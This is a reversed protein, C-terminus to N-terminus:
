RTNGRVMTAGARVLERTRETQKDDNDEIPLMARRVQDRRSPQCPETDHTTERTQTRGRSPHSGPSSRAPLSTPTHGRPPANMGSGKCRQKGLRLSWSRSRVTSSMAHSSLSARISSRAPQDPQSRVKTPSGVGVELFTVQLNVCASVGLQTMVRLTQFM